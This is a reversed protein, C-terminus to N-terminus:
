RRGFHRVFVYAILAVIFLFFYMWAISQLAEIITRYVEVVWRESTLEIIEPNATETFRTNPFVYRELQYFNVGGSVGVVYTAFTLYKEWVYSLSDQIISQLVARIPKRFLSAVVWSVALALVFTVLLLTFFM